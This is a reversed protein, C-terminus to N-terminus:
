EVSNSALFDKLSTFFEPPLSDNHGANPMEFFRKPEHAAEFLRKGHIHPILTDATGHAIFIPRRCTKVRTLSDFQNTMLLRKPAPLWWYLDSAVDPLSTFTKVLILARHDKRSALETAVGGGLSAGYLLIKSPAIKKKEVMWNYAADASQYCGVESPSGGCKGYGPYDLILVSVGLLDRVKVISAGRHSLNGANGHFYLLAQDSGQAPCWWAHIRTGDATALDIDEIGSNAPPLVWDRSTAPRYVLWNEFFLLMSLLGVYTASVYLFPRLWPSLLGVRVNHLMAIM